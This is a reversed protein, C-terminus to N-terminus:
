VYLIQAKPDRVHTIAAKMALVVTKGSGALGRIRQPGAFPMLSGDKQKRDFTTIESELQAALRGKTDEPLEEIERKSPRILGKAGEITSITELYIDEQSEWVHKSIL